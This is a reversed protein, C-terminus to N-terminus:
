DAEKVEQLFKNAYDAAKKVSHQVSTKKLGVYSIKGLLMDVVYCLEKLNEFRESDENSDGVPNVYGILKEVVEVITGGKM